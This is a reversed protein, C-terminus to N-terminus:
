LLHGVGRLVEICRNLGTDSTLIGYRMRVAVACILIDVPGCEVGQGRCLNFLRAAEVYDGDTIEENRFPDLLERTIAFQEKDRIGSLVEQRIPGIMAVRRDRIAERLQTLMQQEAPSSRSKNQRRLSLSWVCTDVIVKM